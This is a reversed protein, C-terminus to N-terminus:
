RTEDLGVAVARGQPESPSSWTRPPRTGNNPQPLTTSPGLRAQGDERRLSQRLRAPGGIIDSGSQGIYVLGDWYVPTPQPTSMSTSPNNSWRKGPPNQRDEPRARRPRRRAGRCLGARGGIECVGAPTGINPVPTSSASTSPCQDPWFRRAPPRTGYAGVVPDESSSSAYLHDRGVRGSQEGSGSGLSGAPELM